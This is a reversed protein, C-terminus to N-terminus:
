DSYISVPKGDWAGMSSIRSRGIIKPQGSVMTVKFTERPGSALMGNPPVLPVVTGAMWDGSHQASQLRVAEFSRPDPVAVVQYFTCSQASYSMIDALITGVTYPHGAKKRNKLDAIAREFVTQLGLTNHATATFPQEEFPKKIGGGEFFAVKTTIEDRFNKHQYAIAGRGAEDEVSALIRVGRYSNQQRLHAVRRSTKDPMPGSPLNRKDDAYTLLTLATDKL